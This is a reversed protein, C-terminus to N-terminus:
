KLVEFLSDKFKNEEQKNYFPLGIVKHKLTEVFKGLDTTHFKEEIKLLFKEKWEDVEKLHEGKPEIFIQYILSDGKNNKLLLVFDPAFAQGDDFNFIRFHLENRILYIEDFNQNLNENILREILRVCAKEEDTGYNANFVYWDKDSLYGIEGDSRRSNKELRLRKDYFINSIKKPNFENSGIYDVLNGKITESIKMLLSYVASFIQNNSLIELDEQVGVFQINIEPLFEKKGLLENISQLSPFYRNINKFQFFNIKSIANKIIHSEIDSLKVTKTIKKIKSIDTERLDMADSKKGKGSYIQFTFDTDKFGLQEFSITKSYDKRIKENLYIFGTKFINTKRFSEKLKLEKEEIEVDILGTEVLAQKLETIYKSENFSHFFLEELLRLEHELDEDFKRRFKDQSVNTVFPYYRAGRGILQAESITSPSVKGKYGGGGAQKSEVRVIDFLNLVDWGENLKHVAFIARIQNDKSELNNLINQQLILENRDKKTISKKDLSEENVNLCNKESFNIKIKAVLNDLSFSHEEYFEFLEKITKNDSRKKIDLVEKVALNDILERFIAHNELSEKIEKQAKFLIVPKFGKMQHKTAVDQRYQNILVATLMRYKKDGDVRFIEINKSYGDKVYEKLDYRYLLRHLYKLYVDKNYEFGMTATFELLINYNNKELIREITNEWNSNESIRKNKTKAQGHHAEDAILVIRKDKFHDFTLSNEKEIKLDGHLKHITTFCINITDSNSSEFNNVEEISIFKGDIEIKNDFLYKISQQNLFNDKTKNIINNSHVFFLFNRYGKKFLYLILGAMILTKGSGTAMNFFVASPIKKFDFHNEFYCKFMKFAEIQYDRLPFGSNLNEVIEKDISQDLIFRRGFEEYLREFLFKDSSM